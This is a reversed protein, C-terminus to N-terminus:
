LILYHNHVSDKICRAAVSYGSGIYQSYQTVSHVTGLDLFIMLQFHFSGAIATGRCGGVSRRRMRITKAEPCPSATQFGKSIDLCRTRFTDLPWTSHRGVFKRKDHGFGKFNSSQYVGDFFWPGAWAIGAFWIIGIVWVKAWTRIFSESM